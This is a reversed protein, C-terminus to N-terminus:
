MEQDVNQEDETVFKEQEEMVPYDEDISNSNTSPLFSKFLNDPTSLQKANKSQSFIRLDSLEIMKRVNGNPPSFLLWFWWVMNPITMLSMFAFLYYVLFIKENLKFNM